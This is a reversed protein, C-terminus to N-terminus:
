SISLRILFDINRMADTQVGRFFASVLRDSVDEEVVRLVARHV